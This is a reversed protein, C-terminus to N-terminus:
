LQLIQGDQGQEVPIGLTAVTSLAAAPDVGPYLHTLVIRRPRLSEPINGVLEVIDEACLHSNWPDPGTSACETVLIDAGASLSSLSEAPGTDGSFVVSFGSPDTFRLHLAGGSHRAPLTTLLIGGPLNANDETELSLEQVQARFKDTRIWSGYVAELGELFSRFGAGAWIPYISRAPFDISVRMAFLIPCLDGCHDIHRHSYVGASLARADVGQKKLARMTGSGGDVLIRSEGYEVLFGAPNRDMSPVLTGTGLLHFRM